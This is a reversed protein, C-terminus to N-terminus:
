FRSLLESWLLLQLLPRGKEVAAEHANSGREDRPLLFRRFLDLIPIRQFLLDRRDDTEFPSGHRQSRGVLGSGDALGPDQMDIRMYGLSATGRLGRLLELDAEGPIFEIGAFAAYSRADRLAGDHEEQFQYSGYQGDFSLRVRASPQVYSILDLYEENRNLRDAISMGQYVVDGYDYQAGGYLLALSTSKSAQWLVLGNASVTKQRVLFELEPSLRRRVNSIGGGAQIYIRDLAVHVRGYFTNNWSRDERTDLYFAYEPSDSLDIVATKSLPLLIQVPTSASSTVDPVRDTLFGYYIDSDYGTDALTFAANVRLGGVRWRAAEVMQQLNIGAWTQGQGWATGPALLLWVAGAAAAINTFVRTRTMMVADPPAAGM